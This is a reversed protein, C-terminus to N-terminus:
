SFRELRISWRRPAPFAAPDGQLLGGPQIQASVPRLHPSERTGVGIRSHAVPSIGPQPPCPPPMPGLDRV